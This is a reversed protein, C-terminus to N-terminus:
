PAKSHELALQGACLATMPNRMTLISPDIGECFISANQGAQDNHAWQFTQGILNQRPLVTILTAGIEFGRESKYDVSKEAVRIIYYDGAPVNKFEFHGLENSTSRRVYQARRPDAPEINYNYTYAQKFAADEYSTAPLLFVKQVIDFTKYDSNPNRYPEFSVTGSVTSTGPTQYKLYESQIFPTRPHFSVNGSACGSLTATLVCATVLLSKTFM